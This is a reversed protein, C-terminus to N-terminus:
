SHSEPRWHRTRGFQGDFDALDSYFLEFLQIVRIKKSSESFVGFLECFFRFSCKGLSRVGFNCGRSRLRTLNLPNMQSNHSVILIRLKLYRKLM